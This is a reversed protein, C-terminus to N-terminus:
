LAVIRLDTEGLSEAGERLDAMIIYLSWRCAEGGITAIVMNTLMVRQREKILMEQKEELLRQLSEIDDQGPLFVLVDGAPRTLHLQLVSILAAEIIDPEPAPTYFVQVPHQRGPVKVLKVEKSGGFFNVFPAAHITASMVVVRLGPPKDEELALKVLGLLVDTNIGREHAEDLVVISSGNIGAHAGGAASERVLMGDTMYKLKTKSSTRNLFRVHYGVLDGVECGMESAVRHAVSIAAIRRPQTVAISGPRTAVAAEYLFRPVQTTKGSGTEGVLVVVRHQRVARVIEERFALIPLAVTKQDQRARKAPRESEM